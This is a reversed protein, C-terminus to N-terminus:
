KAPKKKKVMNLLLDDFQKKSGKSEHEKVFRDIKGKKRAEELSTYKGTSM